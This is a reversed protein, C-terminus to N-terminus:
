KSSEKYDPEMFDEFSIDFFYEFREKFSKEKVTLYHNRTDHVLRLYHPLYFEAQDKNHINKLFPTRSKYNRSHSSEGFEEHERMRFTKIQTEALFNSNPNGPIQIYRKLHLAQYGNPKKNAIYDTSKNPISISDKSKTDFYEKIRYCGDILSKEDTKGDVSNVIIKSGFIDYIRGTYGESLKRDVKERYSYESKVRLEVGFDIDPFERKLALYEQMVHIKYSNLYNALYFPYVEYLIYKKQLLSKEENSLRYLDRVSKSM